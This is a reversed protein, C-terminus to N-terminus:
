PMANMITCCSLTTSQFSAQSIQKFTAIDQAVGAADQEDAGPVQAIRALEASSNFLSHLGCLRRRDQSNFIFIGLPSPAWGSSLPRHKVM